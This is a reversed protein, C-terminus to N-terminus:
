AAAVARAKKLEEVFVHADQAGSVQIADNIVFHPVGQVGMDYAQEVESDVEKGGSDKDLWKKVEAGDLGAKTAAGILMEHSTVDGGEEFHAHFLSAMVKNEMENSKTKALQILRHADRTNGVVRDANFCIGDAEGMRAIRSNMMEFRDKGFKQAMRDKLPIGTKPM